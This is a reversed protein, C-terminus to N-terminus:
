DGEARGEWRWCHPLLSPFACLLRTWSQVETHLSFHIPPAPYHQSCVWIGFCSIEVTSTERANGGEGGILLQHPGIFALTVARQLSPNADNQWQSHSPIAAYRSQKNEGSKFIWIFIESIKKKGNGQIFFLFLYKTNINKGLFFFLPKM